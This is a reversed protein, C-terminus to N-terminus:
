AGYNYESTTTGLGGTGGALRAASVALRGVSSSALTYANGVVGSPIATLTVVGLASSASIFGQILATTSAAISTVIAAACTTNSAGINFENAAAASSTATFVVGNITITDAAQVSAATVTGTAAVLASGSLSVTMKGEVAGGCLGSIYNMLSNAEGKPDSTSFGLRNSLDTGSYGTADNVTILFSAAM